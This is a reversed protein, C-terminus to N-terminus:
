KSKNADPICPLLSDEEIMERVVDLGGMFKGEVYLQPFTPWSSYEKLGQRVDNNELINFSDFVIKQERLLGVITNSFGCQPADPTGKMFLIVPSRKTLAALDGAVNNDNKREPEFAERPMSDKLSGDEELEKMSDLGGVLKGSCYLQPFTPWNSYEKLGARVDPHELINFTSYRAGTKNLMEIAKRSFGCQPASPTGKMFLMISAHNILRELRAKLEDPGKATANGAPSSATAAAGAAGDALKTVASVLGSTKAGEIRGAPQGNNWLLFTPVVTVKHKESIEPNSEAEIKGFRGAPYKKALEELVKNLAVCPKCWDAWFHVVVLSKSGVLKELHEGDVIDMQLGECVSWFTGM